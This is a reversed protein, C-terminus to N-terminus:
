LDCGSASGVCGRGGARASLGRLAGTLGNGPRARAAPLLLRVGGTGGAGGYVGGAGGRRLAPAVIPCTKDNPANMRTIDNKAATIASDMAVDVDRALQRRGFLQLRASVCLKHGALDIRAIARQEILQHIGAAPLPLLNRERLDGGCEL